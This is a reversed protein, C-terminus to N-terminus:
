EQPESCICREPIGDITYYGKGSCEDCDECGAIWHHRPVWGTQNCWKRHGVPRGPRISEGCDSCDDCRCGGNTRMGSKPNAYRCSNDGCDPM